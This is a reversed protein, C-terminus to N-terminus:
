MFCALLKVLLEGIQGFIRTNTFTDEDQCNLNIQGTWVKEMYFEPILLYKTM